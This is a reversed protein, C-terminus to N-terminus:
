NKPHVNYYTQAATLALAAAAAFFALISWPSSFYTNITAAGFTRWKNTYHKEIQNKVETYNKSYAMADTCWTNNFLKTPLHSGLDIFLKALEEDSGLLNQIVGALRLEKVDEGGDILSDMFCFFSCCEMSNRFDPCMEYAILNRFFYPSVNDFMFMPLRLEGYFLKSAFSVSSWIWRDTKSAKVHIGAAKLDRINKYTLWGYSKDPNAMKTFEVGEQKNKVDKGNRDVHDKSTSTVFTRAYDLLHIPKRKSALQVKVEESNSTPQESRTERKNMFSIAIGPICITRHKSEHPVKLGSLRKIDGMSHFNIMLHELDAEKKCLLELLKRPLQNELLIIDRWIYMMQDLKLQLAQPRQKDVNEMFHLLSCGDVFLMLCLDKDTTKTGIADKTFLKKLEAINDQVTKLLFHTVQDTVQNAQKSYQEVYMSTWLLKYHEGQELNKDSHHIPGLSIMKPICFKAFEANQRLVNPVRQIKPSSIQNDEEYKQKALNLKAIISKTDTQSIDSM